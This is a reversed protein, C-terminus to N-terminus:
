MESAHLSTVLVLSYPPETLFKKAERKSLLKFFTDCVSQLDRKIHAPSSIRASMNHLSDLLSRDLASVTHLAHYANSTKGPQLAREPRPHNNYSRGIAIDNVM